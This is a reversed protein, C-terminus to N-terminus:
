QPLAQSDRKQSVLLCGSVQLKRSKERCYKKCNEVGSWARMICNISSCTNKRVRFETSSIQQFAPFHFYPDLKDKKMHIALQVLVVETM